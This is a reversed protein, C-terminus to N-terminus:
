LFACKSFLRNHCLLISNTIIVMEFNGKPKFSDNMVIGFNVLKREDKSTTVIADKIVRGIIEM